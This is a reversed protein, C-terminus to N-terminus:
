AAQRLLKAARNDLSFAGAGFAAVQLLGGAIALNKLFHIMQNQDGFAHHFIVGTVVSFIALALATLRTQYGLALLLGGGVEVVVALIFGLTAFPLGISAIYGITMAPAALKGVGSLLFIAAMLQRGIVPLSSAAKFTNTM